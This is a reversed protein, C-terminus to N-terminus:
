KQDAGLVRGSVLDSKWAKIITSGTVSCLILPTFLIRVFSSQIQQM